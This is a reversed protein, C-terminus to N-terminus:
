ESSWLKRSLVNLEFVNTSQQLGYYCDTISRVVVKVKSTPSLNTPSTSREETRDYADFTGGTEKEVQEKLKQFNSLVESKNKM